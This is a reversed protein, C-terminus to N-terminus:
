SSEYNNVAENLDAMVWLIKEMKKHMIERERTLCDRLKDREDELEKIEGYVWDPVERGPQIKNSLYKM